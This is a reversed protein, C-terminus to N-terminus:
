IRSRRSSYVNKSSVLSRYEENKKEVKQIEIQINQSDIGEYINKNRSIFDEKSMNIDIVKEYMTEYNKENIQSIFDILTQKVKNENQINQIFIVGLVVIAILIVVIIGIKFNIKKKKM